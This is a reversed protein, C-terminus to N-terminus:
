RLFRLDLLSQMMKTLKRIGLPDLYGSIQRELDASQRGRRFLLLRQGLFQGAQDGFAIGAKLSQLM